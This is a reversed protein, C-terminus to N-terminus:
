TQGSGTKAFIRIQKTYFPEFLVVNGCRAEDSAGDEGGAAGGDGGGGGEADDSGEDDSESDKGEVLRRMRTARPGTQLLRGSREKGDRAYWVKYVHTDGMPLPFATPDCLWVRLGSVMAASLEQANEATITLGGLYIEFQTEILDQVAAECWQSAAWQMSPATQYEVYNHSESTIAVGSALCVMGETPAGHTSGTSTASRMFAGSDISDVAMGGDAGGGASHPGDTGDLDGSAVGGTAGAISGAQLHHMHETVAIFTLFPEFELLVQIRALLQTLYSELAARRQEVFAPDGKRSDQLLPAPFPPVAVMEEQFADRLHADLELFQSWRKQASWHQHEGVAVAMQYYTMSVVRPVTVTVEWGGLRPPAAAALQPAAMAQPPPQEVGAGLLGGALRGFARGLGQTVQGGVAVVVGAAAEINQGPRWAPPAVSVFRQFTLTVPRESNKLQQVVDACRQGEISRGQVAMLAIGPVLAPFAAATAPAVQALLVPSSDPLLILGLPGEATFTVEIQEDEVPAVQELYQTPLWLGNEAKIWGPQEMVAYWISRPGAAPFRRRDVQDNLKPTRRFGVAGGEDVRYYRSDSM